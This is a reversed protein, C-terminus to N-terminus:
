LVHIHAPVTDTVKQVKLDRPSPLRGPERYEGGNDNCAFLSSSLLVVILVKLLNKM